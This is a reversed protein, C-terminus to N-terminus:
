SGVAARELEEPVVTRVLDWQRGSLGLRDFVRDFIQVLMAGEQEALRVMREQVGSRIAAVCTEVLHKRERQYEQLLVPPVARFTVDTGEFETAGKVVEESRGWSLETPTFRQVERRLWAVHGATWKVEELLAEAPSVDVLRGYTVHRAAEARIRALAKRNARSVLAGPTLGGHASCVRLPAMPAAECQRHHQSSHGQCRTDAYDHDQGRETCLRCPTTM